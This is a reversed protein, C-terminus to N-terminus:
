PYPRGVHRRCESLAELIWKLMLAINMSKTNLIGLGGFAKPRCVTVWDLM